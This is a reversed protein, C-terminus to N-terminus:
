NESGSAEDGGDEVTTTAAIVTYVVIGIFTELM